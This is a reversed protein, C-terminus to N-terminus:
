SFSQLRGTRATIHPLYFVTIHVDFLACSKRVSRIPWPSIAGHVYVRTLELSMEIVEKACLPIFPTSVQLGAVVGNHSLSQTRYEEFAPDELCKKLIRGVAQLVSNEGGIITIVRENIGRVCDDRSQV